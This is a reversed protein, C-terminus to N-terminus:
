LIPGLIKYKWKTSILYSIIIKSTVTTNWRLIIVIWYLHVTPHSSSHSTYPLLPKRSALFTFGVATQESHINIALAGIIRFDNHKVRVATQVWRCLKRVVPFYLGGICNFVYLHIKNIYKKTLEDYKLNTTYYNLM